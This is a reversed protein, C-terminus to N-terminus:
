LEADLADLRKSVAASADEAPKQANQLARAWARNPTWHYLEGPNAGHARYQSPDTLIAGPRIFYFNRAGYEAKTDVTSKRPEPKIEVTENKTGQARHVTAVITKSGQAQVLGALKNPDSLPKGDIELLIDHVKLGAKAAPSDAMVQNVLVGSASPLQLQSRLPADSAPSKAGPWYRPESRSHRAP